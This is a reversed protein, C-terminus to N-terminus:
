EVERVPEDAEQPAESAVGVVVGNRETRKARRKNEVVYQTSTSQGFRAFVTSYQISTLSVLTDGYTFARACHRRQAVQAAGAQQEDHEEQQMVHEVEMPRLM